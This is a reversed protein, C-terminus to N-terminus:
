KILEIIEAITKNIKVIDGAIESEIDAFHESPKGFSLLQHDKRITRLM